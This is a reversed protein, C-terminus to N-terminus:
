ERVQCIYCVVTSGEYITQVSVIRVEDGVGSIKDGEDPAPLAVNSTDFAPIIARRDGRVIFDDNLESLTYDAVYAKVTYETTTTAVTGTSVTYVGTSVKKLTVTQGFENILSLTDKNLM